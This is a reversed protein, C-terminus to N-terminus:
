FIGASSMEQEWEEFDQEHIVYWYNGAKYVHWKKPSFQKSRFYYAKGRTDFHYGM